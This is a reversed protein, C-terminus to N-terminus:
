SKNSFDDSFSSGLRADIAHASGFLSNWTPNRGMRCWIEVVEDPASVVEIAQSRCWDIRFGVLHHGPVMAVRRTGGADINCVPIEDVVIKYDRLRGFEENARHVILWSEASGEM